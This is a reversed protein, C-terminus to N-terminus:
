FLVKSKRGVSDQGLLHALVMALLVSHPLHQYFLHFPAVKKLGSTMEKSDNQCNLSCGENDLTKQTKDM